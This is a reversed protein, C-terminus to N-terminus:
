MGIVLHGLRTVAVAAVALLELPLAVLPTLCKARQLYFGLLIAPDMAVLWDLLEVPM